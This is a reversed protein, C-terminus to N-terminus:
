VVINVLKGPVFIFNKIEENNIFKKIKEDNLVLSKVEEEKAQSNVELKSRLKGNVQVVITVKDSKIAEPSYKPWSSKFISEKHGLIEWMEECIHPTFPALLKVVAEKVEKLGAQSGGRAQYAENILEM